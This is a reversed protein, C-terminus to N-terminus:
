PSTLKFFCLHEVLVVGLTQLGRRCSLLPNGRNISSGSLTIKESVQLSM